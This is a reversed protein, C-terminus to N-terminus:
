FPKTIYDNSGSEFGELKYEISDMATLMITPINKYISNSEKLSKIFELGSEEPMMWDVIIVDFNMNELALRAEKASKVGKALYDSRELLQLILSLLREDDDIVLINEM